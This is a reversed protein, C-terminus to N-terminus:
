FEVNLPNQFNPSYYIYLHTHAKLAKKKELWFKPKFICSMLYLTFICQINKGGTLEQTEDHQQGHREAERHWQRKIATTPPYQGKKASCVIEKINQKQLYTAACCCRVTAAPASLLEYLKCNAQYDDTESRIQKQKAETFSTKTTKCRLGRQKPLLQPKATWVQEKGSARCGDTTPSM